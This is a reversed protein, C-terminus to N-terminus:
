QAIAQALADPTMEQQRRIMDRAEDLKEWVNCTMVGRVRSNRLYYVIGTVNEEQWDAVTDLDSSIDGVAEYGFEFLDSYFYPMHTYKERQGAMNRGAVRGQEKANDWHEVRMLKGLAVYPFRAIDGAAYIDRHSSQLYESVIIGDDVQLGAGEALEVSPTIGIGALILDSRLEQGNRTRTIYQSGQREISTPVDTSLVHIGREQYHSQLAQGLGAPFIRQVLYSEPFIITVDLGTMNLAAAIESGIFGGGIVTASKGETAEARLGQYHDLYRYYYIGELDGGPINLRRPIGGTALLLKQFRFSEGTSLTVSRARPDLATVTTDLVLRVNNEDYYAQDNVFIDGVSKKGSWLDKTLPPRNYPLHKESGILLIPRKQDIERIGKVASAGALGGGVIIYTYREPM